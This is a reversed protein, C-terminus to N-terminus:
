CIKIGMIVFGEKCYAPNDLLYIVEVDIKRSTYEGSIFENLHLIDYVNYNRDNLRVEFTKKDNKIAIFHKPLIKLDHHKRSM